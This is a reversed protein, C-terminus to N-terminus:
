HMSTQENGLDTYIIQGRKKQVDIKIRKDRLEEGRIVFGSRNGSFKLLHSLASNSVSISDYLSLTYTTNAVVRLDGKTFDDYCFYKFGISTPISANQQESSTNILLGFKTRYTKERILRKLEKEMETIIMHDYISSYYLIKLFSGTVFLRATEFYGFKHLLCSIILSVSQKLVPIIGNEM